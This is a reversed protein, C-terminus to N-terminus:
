TNHKKKKLCFVAYSTRMLSQLESTHEESRRNFNDSGITAWTDDVICAKAHVYVPVGAHNELGYIAVRDPFKRLLDRMARRRGELQPLRGLVGELDTFLPVVGILHLDPNRELATTFM